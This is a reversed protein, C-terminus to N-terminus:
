PLEVICPNVYAVFGLPIMASSCSNVVTPVSYQYRKLVKIEEPKSESKPRHEILEFTLTTANTYTLNQYYLSYIHNGTSEDYVAWKAPDAMALRIPVKSLHPAYIYVSEEGYGIPSHGSVYAFSSDNSSWALERFWVPHMEFNNVVDHGTELDYVHEAHGEWMGEPVHAWTGQPSFEGKGFSSRSPLGPGYKGYAITLIQGPRELRLEDPYVKSQTQETPDISTCPGVVFERNLNGKVVRLVMGQPGEVSWENNPCDPLNSTNTESSVLQNSSPASKKSGTQHGLMFAGVVLIAAILAVVYVPKHTQMM